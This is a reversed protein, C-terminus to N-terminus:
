RKSKLTENKDRNKQLKFIHHRPISKKPMIRKLTMQAEQVHPKNDAALKPFSETIIEEVIEEAGNEWVEGEAM